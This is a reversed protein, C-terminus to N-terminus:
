AADSRREVYGGEAFLDRASRREDGPSKQRVLHAIDGRKIGIDALDRDSFAQLESEANRLEVWERYRAVLTSLTTM